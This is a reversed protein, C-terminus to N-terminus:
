RPATLGPGARLDGNVLDIAAAIALLALVLGLALWPLSGRWREVAPAAGAGAAIPAVYGPPVVLTRQGDIVADIAADIGDAIARQHDVITNGEIAITRGDEIAPEMSEPPEVRLSVDTDAEVEERTHSLTGFPFARPRPLQAWRIVHAVKRRAPSAAPGTAEIALDALHAAIARKGDGPFKSAVVALAARMEGATQWRQDLPRSLGRMVVEELAGPVDRNISSPPPVAMHCVRDIAALDNSAAFLPQGTLLEHAVIAAAFLDARRDIKGRLAEPALYALKGRMQTSHSTGVTARAIGFDIVKLTGDDMLLLNSPSVDRHVVGAPRGDIMRTHAHDLAALMQDLLALTVAIPARRGTARGREMIAALDQGRVYEMAIFYTGNVSGLEYIRVINPHCLGAALQAEQAFARLLDGNEALHPHLRKLAVVRELGGSVRGIAVARHVSAMGGIGLREHVRYNGFREERAPAGSPQQVVTTMAGRIM